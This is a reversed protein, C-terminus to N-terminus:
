SLGKITGSIKKIRIGSIELAAKVKEIEERNVCLLNHKIFIPNAKGYGLIGIYDLISKEIEEKTGNELLLYRKNERLVPKLSKEKKRQM